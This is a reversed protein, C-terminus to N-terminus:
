WNARGLAPWLYILLHLLAAAYIGAAVDDLVVGAGGKLRQDLASCPWPKVIDFFRFLLFGAAVSVPSPSIGIMTVAYGAVEDIVIRGDDHKGYIRNARSALPIAALILALTAALYGWIPWGCFLLYFPIGALTGFTGPALPALGLYAGSSM